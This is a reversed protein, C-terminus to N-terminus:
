VPQTLSISPNDYLHLTLATSTPDTTVEFGILADNAERVRLLDSDLGTFCWLDVLDGDSSGLELGEYDADNHYYSDPPVRDRTMSMKLVVLWVDSERSQVYGEVVEVPTPSEDYGEIIEGSPPPDRLMLADWDELDGITVQCTRLEDGGSSDANNAEGQTTAPDTNSATDQVTTRDINSTAGPATLGDDNPTITAVLLVAGGLLAAVLPVIVALRRVLNWTPNTQDDPPSTLWTWVTHVQRRV